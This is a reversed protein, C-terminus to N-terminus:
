HGSRPELFFSDPSIVSELVPTTFICSSSTADQTVFFLALFLVFVACHNPIGFPCFLWSLSHDTVLVPVIWISFISYCQILVWVKLIWSEMNTSIFSQIFLYTFQSFLCIKWVFSNWIIFTFVKWEKLTLQTYCSGELTYYPFSFFYSWLPFDQCVLWIILILMMLSLGHQYCTGKILNSSFWVKGKYNKEWVGLCWDLWSFYMLCTWNLSMRYFVQGTSRLVTLDAFFSTQSVRM